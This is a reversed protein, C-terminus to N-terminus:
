GGQNRPEGATMAPQQSSNQRGALQRDAARLVTLCSAEAVQGTAMAKRAWDASFQPLGCRLLLVAGELRLLGSEGGAQMARLLPELARPFGESALLTRSLHVAALECSRDRDHIAELLVRARLIWGRDLFTSALAALGPGAHIGPQVPVVLPAPQHALCHRYHAEAAEYRGARQFVGAAIWHLNPTPQFRAVAQEIVELAEDERGVLGLELALLAAVEGAFPPLASDASRALLGAFAHSLHSVCEDRRDPFRRLFDGFRYLLYADEPADLLALRFLRENRENKGRRQIVEPHYGHHLIRIPLWV